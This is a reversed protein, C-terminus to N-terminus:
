RTPLAAVRGSLSVFFRAPALPFGVTDVADRKDLLNRGEASLALFSWRLWPEGPFWGDGYRAIHRRWDM